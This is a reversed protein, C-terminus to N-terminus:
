SLSREFQFQIFIGEGREGTQKRPKNSGKPSMHRTFKHWPSTMLYTKDMVIVQSPTKCLANVLTHFDTLFKVAVDISEQLAEKSNANGVLKLSLHNRRLFVSIFSSSPFRNFHVHVFEKFNETTSSELTLEKYVVWGALINEEEITFKRARAKKRMRVKIAEIHMDQHDWRTITTPSFVGVRFAISRNSLSPPYSGTKKILKKRLKLLRKAHIIKKMTTMKGCVGRRFLKSRPHFYILDSLNNPRDIMRAVFDSM